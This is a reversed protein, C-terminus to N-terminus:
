AKMGHAFADHLERALRLRESLVGHRLREEGYRHNQGTVTGIMWAVLLVFAFPLV